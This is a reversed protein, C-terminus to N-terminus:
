NQTYILVFKWTTLETKKPNKQRAKGTTAQTWFNVEIQIKITFFCGFTGVVTWPLHKASLATNFPLIISSFSSLHMWCSFITPHVLFHQIFLKASLLSWGVYKVHNKELNQFSEFEDLMEELMSFKQHEIFTPHMQAPRLHRINLDSHFFLFLINFWLYGAHVVLIKGM